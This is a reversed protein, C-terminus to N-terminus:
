IPLSPAIWASGAVVMASGPGAASGGGDGVKRGCASRAPPGCRAATHPDAQGARRVRRSVRSGCRSMGDMGRVCTSCVLSRVSQRSDFRSVLRSARCRSARWRTQAKRAPGHTADGLMNFCYVVIWALGPWFSRRKEMFERGERSLPRRLSPVHPPLFRWARLRQCIAALTSASMTIVVPMIPCSTSSLRDCQQAPRAAASLLYDDEKIGIVPAECSELRRAERPGAPATVVSSPPRLLLLGPFLRISSGSCWWTCRGGLEFRGGCCRWPTSLHDALGRHAFSSGSILRSLLDRARRPVWSRASPCGTVLAVLIPRLSTSSCYRLDRQCYRCRSGAQRRVRPDLVAYVPRDASQDWGRRHRRVPQNRLGGPLRACLPVM